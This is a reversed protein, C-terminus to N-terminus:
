VEYERKWGRKLDSAKRTRLHLMETVKHMEKLETVGVSSVVWGDQGQIKLIKGQVAFVTPIFAVEVIRGNPIIKVM